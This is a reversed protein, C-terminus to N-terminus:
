EVVLWSPRITTATPRLRGQSARNWMQVWANKLARSNRQEPLMICERLFSCSRRFIPALPLKIGRVELAKVMPLNASQPM